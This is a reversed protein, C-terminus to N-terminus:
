ACHHKFKYTSHIVVNDPKLASHMTPNATVCGRKIRAEHEQLRKKDKGLPLKLPPGPPVMAGLGARITALLPVM